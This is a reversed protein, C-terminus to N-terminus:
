QDEGHGDIQAAAVPILMGVHVGLLGLLHFAGRHVYLFKGLFLGTLTDGGQHHDKCHDDEEPHRELLSTETQGVEGAVVRM